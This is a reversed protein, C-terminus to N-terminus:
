GSWKGQQFNTFMERYVDMFDSLYVLCLVFAMDRYCDPGNTTTTTYSTGSPLITIDNEQSYNQRKWKAVTNQNGGVARRGTNTGDEGTTLLLKTRSSSKSDPLIQLAPLTPQHVFFVQQKSSLTAYLYLPKGKHRKWKFRKQNPYNPCLTYIGFSSNFALRNTRMCICVTVITHTNDEHQHLQLEHSFASCIMDLHRQWNNDLPLYLGRTTCEEKHRPFSFAITANDDKNKYHEGISINAIASLSAISAPLIAEGNRKKSVVSGM